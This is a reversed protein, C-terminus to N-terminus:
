YRIGSLYEVRQQLHEVARAFAEPMYQPTTRYRSLQAFEQQSNKLAGDLQQHWLKIRDMASPATSRWVGASWVQDGDKSEHWQMNKGLAKYSLLKDPSLWLAPDEQIDMVLQFVVDVVGVDTDFWEGRYRCNHLIRHMLLEVTGSGECRYTRVLTLPLPTGCQLGTLRGGPSTTTKGIKLWHYGEMQVVYIYEEYPM